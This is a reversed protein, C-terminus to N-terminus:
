EGSPDAPFLVRQEPDMALADRVPAFSRRHIRLPGRQKLVQLHGPTPYGKHEAFGYGPYLRDMETMLTDRTTKAILSAAAIAACLADGHVIAKQPFPCHPITRADVLVYEPKPDLGEVARTM